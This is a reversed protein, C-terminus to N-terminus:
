EIDELRIPLLQPRGEFDKSKAVRSRADSLDLCLAASLESSTNGMKTLWGNGRLSWLVYM